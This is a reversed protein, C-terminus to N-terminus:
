EPKRCRVSLTGEINPIRSLPIDLLNAVVSQVVAGSPVRQTLNVKVPNDPGVTPTQPSLYERKETVVSFTVRTELDAPSSLEVTFWPIKTADECLTQDKLDWSLLFTEDGPTLTTEPRVDITRRDSALATTQSQAASQEAEPLEENQATCGIFLAALSNFLILSKIFSHNVLM